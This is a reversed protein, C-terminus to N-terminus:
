MSSGIESPQQFGDAVKGGAIADIEGVPPAVGVLPQAVIGVGFHSCDQSSGRASAHADFSEEPPGVGVPKTEAGFLVSVQAHLHVCGPALNQEVLTHTQTAGMVLFQDDDAMGGTRLAVDREDTSDVETVTSAVVGVM